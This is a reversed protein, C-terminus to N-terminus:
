TLQGTSAWNTRPVSGAQRRDENRRNQIRAVLNEHMNRNLGFIFFVLMNLMPIVSTDHFMANPLYNALMLVTLLGIQRQWLPLDPAYWLCWGSLFCYVIILCFLVASFIGAEALIALLANHQVYPMGKEIPLDINRETAYNWNHRQYQGLGVGTFPHDKFVELALVALIPRLKVSDKTEAATLHKDRKFALLKGGVLGLMMAGCLGAVLMVRLRHPKPVVMVAMGVLAFALGLWVSRTMTCYAGLAIVGAAAVVIPRHVPKTKPWALMCCIFGAVMYFGNGAPNLFPGRGRGFFEISDPNVIYRPFVISHLGRVECIAMVALYVGFGACCMLVLSHSKETLQCRSAVWYLAVPMLWFFLLVAVSRGGGWRWDGAITTIVLSGVFLFILGDSKTLRRSELGFLCRHLSYALILGALLLRDATVVSVHFFPHGFCSGVLLTVLCGGLLGTRRFCLYGWICLALGFPIILVIPAM